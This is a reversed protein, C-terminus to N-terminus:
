NFLVNAFYGEFYWAEFELDLVHDSAGAYSTSLVDNVYKGRPTQALLNRQSETLLPQLSSNNIGDRADQVSHILEHSVTEQADKESLGSCVALHNTAANYYGMLGPNCVASTDVTITSQVIPMFALVISLFTSIM